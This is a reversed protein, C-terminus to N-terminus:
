LRDIVKKVKEIYRFTYLQMYKTPEYTRAYTSMKRVSLIGDGGYLLNTRIDVSKTTRENMQENTRIYTGGELKNTQKNKQKNKQKNTLENTRKNTRKYTRGGRSTQENTHVDGGELKYTRGGLQNLLLLTGLM